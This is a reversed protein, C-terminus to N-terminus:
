SIEKKELWDKVKEKSGWCGRPLENRLFKVWNTINRRNIDDAYGIANIFDNQLLFTLFHGPKIHHEVYRRVSKHMHPPIMGYNIKRM